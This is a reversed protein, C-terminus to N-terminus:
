VIVGHGNSDHMWDPVPKGGWGEAVLHCMDSNYDTIFDGKRM